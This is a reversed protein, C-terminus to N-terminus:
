KDIQGTEMYWLYLDLKGLPEGVMKSLVRLEKEFKTYKKETWSPKPIEKVLNYNKIIRMIHKDLIAVDERGVNRLFHSAEKWGIGKINEVLFRRSESIDKQLLNKLRGIIWRNEVIYRSRTNSFRHGVERLKSILQKESYYAFGEKTIIKQAKIGGKARWNATLICFSLECFLDLEDGNQGIEKFEEFRREVEDKITLKLKEIKNVLLDSPKAIKSHTM